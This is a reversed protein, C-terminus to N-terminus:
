FVAPTEAGEEPRGYDEERWAKPETVWGATLVLGSARHVALFGFPRDFSARVVTTEYPLEEVSLWIAEAATVATARFGEASFVATATQHVSRLALPARSIGPFHGPRGDVAGALGFPDPHAAVDHECTLAFEVATLVVSPPAPERVWQRAVCLGPGAAGLPLRGGPVVTLRGGLIEVGAALVQGPTMREEGLLLHVDLGNTGRVRAETVSGDPTRAVGVADLDTTTRRLGAVDEGSPLGGAWVGIDGSFPEEWDTRLATATALVLSSDRDLRVPMRGIRGGTRRAAWADLAARDAGADGTLVGHAGAPLGAAWPEELEVTRATWLGLASEVGEVGVLLGLLERASAAAQDAPVGLADALEERVRGTAGDALFALLPWLGAASFVSGGRAPAAAAWRATLGNVLPIARM